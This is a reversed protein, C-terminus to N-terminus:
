VAVGDFPRPRLAHRRSPSRHSSHPPPGTRRNATSRTTCDAGTSINSGRAASGLQIGAENKAHRRRTSEAARGAYRGGTIRPPSPLALLKFHRRIAVTSFKNGQMQHPCYQPFPRGGEGMDFNCLRGFLHTVSSDNQPIRSVFSNRRRTTCSRWFLSTVSTNIPLLDGIKHSNHM